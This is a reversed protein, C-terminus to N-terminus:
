EKYIKEEFDNSTNIANGISDCARAIHKAKLDHEYMRPTIELHVDAIMVYLRTKDKQNKCYKKLATKYLNM